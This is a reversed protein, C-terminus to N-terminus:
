RRNKKQSRLAARGTTDPLEDDDASIGYVPQNELPHADEGEGTDEDSGALVEEQFRDAPVEGSRVQPVVYSTPQLKYAAADPMPAAQVEREGQEESQAGKGQREERNEEAM